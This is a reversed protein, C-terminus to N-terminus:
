KDWDAYMSWGANEGDQINRKVVLKVRWNLDFLMFYAKRNYFKATLSSTVISVRCALCCYCTMVFNYQIHSPYLYPPFPPASNRSYICQWTFMWRPFLWLTDTHSHRTSIFLLQQSPNNLRKNIHGPSLFWSPNRSSYVDLIFYLYLNIHMQLRM